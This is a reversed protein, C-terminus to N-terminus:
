GQFRKHLACKCLVVKSKHNSENFTQSMIFGQMSLCTSQYMLTIPISLNIAAEGGENNHIAVLLPHLYYTYNYTFWTQQMLLSCLILDDNQIGVNM